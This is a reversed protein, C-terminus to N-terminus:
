EVIHEFGEVILVDCQLCESVMGRLNEKFQELGLTTLLEFDCLLFVFIFIYCMRMTLIQPSM